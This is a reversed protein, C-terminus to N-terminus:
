DTGQCLSGHRLQPLASGDEDRDKRRAKEAISRQQSRDLRLTRGALTGLLRNGLGRDCLAWWVQSSSRVFHWFSTRTLEGMHSADDIIIDFGDPVVRRAVESLFGTDGQSGEFLHVRETPEFNKPLEIDIGAITGHPFYDRWLQLSAGEHVGLELLVIAQDVWPTLLRDYQWFYGNVVKDTAYQGLNLEASRM